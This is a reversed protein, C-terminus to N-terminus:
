GQASFIPLLENIIPTLDSANTGNKNIMASIVIKQEPFIVFVSIGGVSVGNHHYSKIKYKSALTWDSVRWGLAYIQGGNTRGNEPITLLQQQVTKSLFRDDLMTNGLKVMDTPTSLFGGSPWRISQDVHFTPKYRANEIEYPKAKLAESNSGDEIYTHHMGLPTLIKKKVAISFSEQTSKTVAMGAFNFGLSTYSYHQGPPTLLPSNEIVEISERLTEFHKRNLHEWIPFCFCLGYNRIGARHSMVQELTVGKLADALTPDLDGLMTDFSLKGQDVLSAIAVATITKSTSGIRFAHEFSVPSRNELDAYGTAARWAMKGDVSVAVSLAPSDIKSYLKNVVDNALEGQVKWQENFIQTELPPPNTTEFKNWGFNYVFIPELLKFSLVLGAIFLLTIFLKLSKIGKSKNM